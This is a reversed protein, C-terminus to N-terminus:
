AEGGTEAPREFLMRMRISYVPYETELYGPRPNAQQSQKEVQQITYIKPAMAEDSSSAMQRGMPTIDHWTAGDDISVQYKIYQPMEERVDLTIKELPQEFYYPETVIEGTAEYETSFIEIDRIGICYRWGEFREIGMEINEDNLSYQVNSIINEMSQTTGDPTQPGYTADVSTPTAKVQVGLDQLAIQPGEVRPLHTPSYEKNITDFVYDPGNEIQRKAEYYIHGIDTFYKEPQEFLITIVKATRPSFHFTYDSDLKASTMVSLPASTGDSVLIDKVIATKAGHNPPTYMNVNIQNILSEEALIVQLNLKLVGGDPDRAFRLTQNGNVQYDWGLNKAVAQKDQERVNVLEYEFWTNADGDLVVGYAGHNNKEGVFRYTYDNNTLSSGPSVTIEHNNGPFGNSESGIIFNKYTKNGPVITITAEKGVSSQSTQGLTVTGNEIHAPTGSIRDFDIKDNNAFDNRCFVIQGNVNLNSSLLELDKLKDAIQDFEAQLMSQQVVNHNFDAYLARGIIDVEQFLLDMDQKIEGMM